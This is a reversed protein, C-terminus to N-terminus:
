QALTTYTKTDVLSINNNYDMAVMYVTYKTGATLGSKGTTSSQIAGNYSVKIDSTSQNNKVYEVIGNADTVTNGLTAIGADTAVITYIRSMESVSYKYQISTSTVTGLTYSTFTPATTDNSFAEISVQKTSSLTEGNKVVIFLDYAIGDQVPLELVTFNSNTPIHVMEGNAVVYDATVTVASGSTTNTVTVASGSTIAEEKPQLLYYVDVNGTAIVRAFATDTDRGLYSATVGDNVVNEQAYIKAYTVNKNGDADKATIKLTYNKTPDLKEFVQTNLGTTLVQDYLSIDANVTGETLFEYDVTGNENSNFRVVVASSTTYQVQVNVIKPSNDEDEDDTWRGNNNKDKDKDKNNDKEFTIKDTIDKGFNDMIAKVLESIIVKAEPNQLILKEINSRFTARENKCDVVKITGTGEIITEGADESIVVEGIEGNNTVTGGSTVELSGVTTNEAVIVANDGEVVVTEIAGEGELLVPATSDTSVANVVADKDVFLRVMEKSNKQMKVKHAKSKGTLKVSHSGGGEVIIDGTVTVNELTLDGEGVGAAVLLDGTITTDKLVVDKTNIVVNGAVNGTYTGAKTYLAKIVKDLISAVEARTIQANADFKNGQRGSVFGKSQLAKIYGKADTSITSDDVFTTAGEIPSIELAKCLIIAVEGRTIYEKANISSGADVNGAAVNGLVSNAYWETGTMDSFTNEGKTQYKMIKDVIALFEARTINSQPKFSGDTYGSLVGNDSWRDISGSAWSKTTDKFDKASVVTTSSFAMAVALFLSLKRKM